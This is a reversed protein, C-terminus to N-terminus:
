RNCTAAEGPIRARRYRWIRITGYRHGGEPVLGPAEPREEGTRRHVVASGDIRLLPTLLRLTAEVSALSHRYPPDVFVLDYTGPIDERGRAPHGALFRDVDTAVVQGGLDVAELNSRLAKLASRDREVFVASSSGRSLAELGLSGTGAYLDLVDAGPLSPAIASFVAERARDTMPRTALGPPARLRRGKAVGAIVRM